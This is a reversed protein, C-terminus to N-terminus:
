WREVKGRRGRRSVYSGKHRSVSVLQVRADQILHAMPLGGRVVHVDIICEISVNPLVHDVCDSSADEGQKPHQTEWGVRQDRGGEASVLKLCEVIVLAAKHPALKVGPGERNPDKGVLQLLKPIGNLVPEQLFTIVKEFNGLEKPRELVV